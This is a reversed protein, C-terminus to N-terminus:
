PSNAERRVVIEITRDPLVGVHQSDIAGVVRQIVTVSELEPHNALQKQVHVRLEDETPVMGFQDLTPSPVLGVGLGPPNGDYNRQLAFDALELNQGNPGLVEYECYESPEDCFMPSVTFPYMEGLVFPALLNVVVFALVAGIEFRSRVQLEPSEDQPTASGENNTM